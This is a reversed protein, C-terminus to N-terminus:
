PEDSMVEPKLGLLQKLYHNKFVRWIVYSLVVIVVVATISGFQTLLLNSTETPVGNKLTDADNTVDIAVGECLDAFKSANEFDGLSYWVYAETLYEGGLNLLDILSSVNAGSKEATYVANYSAALTKEVDNLNESIPTVSSSIVCPVVLLFLSMMCVSSVFFKIWNM